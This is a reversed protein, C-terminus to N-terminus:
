VFRVAKFFRIQALAVQEMTDAVIAVVGGKVPILEGQYGSRNFAEMATLQQGPMVIVTVPKGSDKMVIHLGEQGDIDCIGAYSMGEVPKELQAGVSAFLQHMDKDNEPVNIENFANHEHEIHEIVHAFMEDSSLAISQSTQLSWVSLTAVFMVLSAAIGYGWNSNFGSMGFWSSSSEKASDAIVSETGSGIDAVKSSGPAENEQYSQNLLIRAHLGEPIEVDLTEQIAQDFERMEQVVSMKEPNEELFDLMENDLVQPNTLLKSRFSMENM